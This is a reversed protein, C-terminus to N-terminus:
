QFSLLSVTERLNGSPPFSADTATVNLNDHPGPEGGKLAERETVSVMISLGKFHEGDINHVRGTHQLDVLLVPVSTSVFRAAHHM